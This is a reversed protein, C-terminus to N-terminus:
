GADRVDGRAHDGADGALVMALARPSERARAFDAADRRHRRLGDGRHLQQSHRARPRRALRAARRQRPSRSQRFAAFHHLPFVHEAAANARSGLYGSRRVLQALPIFSPAAILSRRPADARRHRDSRRTSRARLPIRASAFRSSLRFYAVAAYAGYAMTAPFRPSRTASRSSASRGPRRESAARPACRSGSCRPISRRPTRSTGGALARRDTGRRRLPDRRDGRRAQRPAGRAALPLRLWFAVNLKLLIIGTYIWPLPLLLAPFFVSRRSCRRYRIGARRLRHVSELSVRALRNQDALPRHLVGDASRQHLSNQASSRGCARGRSSTTSSTTRRRSAGWSCRRFSSSSTIFPWRSSPSAINKSARVPHQSPKDQSRLADSRTAYIVPSRQASACSLSHFAEEDGGVDVSESRVRARASPRNSIM